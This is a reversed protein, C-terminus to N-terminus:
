LWIPKQKEEKEPKAKPKDEFKKYEVYDNAQIRDILKQREQQIFFERYGIFVLFLSCIIIYGTLFVV